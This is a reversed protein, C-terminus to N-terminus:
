DSQYLYSYVDKLYIVQNLPSVEALLPKKEVAEEDSDQVIKMYAEGQKNIALSWAAGENSFCYKSASDDDIRM